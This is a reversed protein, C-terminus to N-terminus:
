ILPSYGTKIAADHIWQSDEASALDGLWLVHGAQSSLIENAHKYSLSM